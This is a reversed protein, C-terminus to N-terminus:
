PLSLEERGLSGLWLLRWPYDALNWAAQNTGEGFFFRDRRWARSWLAGPDPQVDSISEVRCNVPDHRNCDAQGLLWKLVSQHTNISAMM